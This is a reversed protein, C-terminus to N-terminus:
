SLPLSKEGPKYSSLRAVVSGLVPVKVKMMLPIRREDLSIWGRIKGRKVFIGQFKIFPEAELAQFRGVGEIELPAATLLKVELDWNKEDANVPLTVTTNPKVELTRFFYGCSLQDQVDKSILMEKESNNSLSKYLATHKEQDYTMVEHVKYRGERLKKEYRVSHLKEADIWTHHEDRVKYLLDIVPHSKVRVIMHYVSRNNLTEMASVEAEAEGVTLGLYSIKYTLKEGVFFNGAPKQVAPYEPLPEKAFAAPMLSFFILFRLNKRVVKIVEVVAM